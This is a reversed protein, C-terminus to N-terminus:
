EEFLCKTFVKWWGSDKFHKKVNSLPFPSVCDLHRYIFKSGTSNVGVYLSLPLIYLWQQLPLTRKGRPLWGCPLCFGKGQSLGWEMNGHSWLDDWLWTARSKSMRAVDERRGPSWVSENKEACYLADSSLARWLSLLTRTAEPIEKLSGLSCKVFVWTMHDSNLLRLHLWWKFCVLSIKERKPKLKPVNEKRKEKREWTKKSFRLSAHQSSFISNEKNTARLIKGLLVSQKGLLLKNKSNGMKLASLPIPGCCTGQGQKGGSM